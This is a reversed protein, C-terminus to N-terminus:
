RTQRESLIELPALYDIEEMLETAYCAWGEVLTGACFLAVRSACDVGAIQGIRSPARFANYNQVHHGLGGHHVVHNLKITAFNAARLRREQEEPPMEPEVPTVLYRQTEPRGFPPPCRYFLYYLGPAAERDSPPIPVYEIPFDPWTVLDHAEAAQKAEQWIDAYARYYTEQTPHNDPLRALLQQWTQAPDITQAHAIMRARADALSQRAYEEVWAADRGPPLCHGRLLYRDFAERGAAYEDSSRQMLDGELWARHSSVADFAIDAAARFAPDTIGRAAALIRLGDGFYTEGARAERIARETWATPAAEVNHRGQALFEPILRMRAIAAKVRDALPESDRQFLSIVSFVAEGTYYSPNGRHFQPAGDEWLQLDLFGDALTLDIQRIPDLEALPLSTLRERLDRMERATTALGSPSCDPLEADHDHVGIFTANVPRRAYYHAFFADLWTDAALNASRM